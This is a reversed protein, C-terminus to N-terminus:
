LTTQSFMPTQMLAEIAHCNACSSMKPGGKFDPVSVQSSDRRVHERTKESGM